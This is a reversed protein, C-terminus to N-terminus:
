SLRALGVASGLGQSPPQSFNSKKIAQGPFAGPQSEQAHRGPNPWRPSDPMFPEAQSSLFGVLKLKLFTRSNRGQDLKIAM